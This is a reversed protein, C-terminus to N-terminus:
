PVDPRRDQDRDPLDEGVGGVGGDEGAEGRLGGVSDTARGARADLVVLPIRRDTREQYASFRGRNVADLRRWLRARETPDTVPRALVAVRRRGVRVTARPQALLNRFWAPDAPSGGDSAVVAWAEAPEDVEVYVLAAHRERGTSRGTTTLVLTPVGVLRHGVRGGSARYLRVHARFVTRVLRASVGARGERALPALALLALAIVALPLLRVTPSGDENRVQVAVAGLMAVVALAGGLARWGPRAGRIGLAFCAVAAAELVTAGVAVVIPVGLDAATASHGRVLRGSVVLVFVVSVLVSAVASAAALAPAPRSGGSM